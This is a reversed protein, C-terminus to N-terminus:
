EARHCEMQLQETKVIGEPFRQHTPFARVLFVMRSFSVWIWVWVSASVWIAVSLSAWGVVLARPQMWEVGLAREAWFRLVAWVGIELAGLEFSVVVQLILWLSFGKLIM